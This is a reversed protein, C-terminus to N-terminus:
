QPFMQSHCLGVDASAKRPNLTGAPPICVVLPFM